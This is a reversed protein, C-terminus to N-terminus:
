VWAWGGQNADYPVGTLMESEFSQGDVIIWGDKYNFDADNVKPGNRFDQEIIATRHANYLARAKELANTM